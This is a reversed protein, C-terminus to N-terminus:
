IATDDPIANIHTLAPCMVFSTLRNERSLRNKFAIETQRRKDSNAKTM